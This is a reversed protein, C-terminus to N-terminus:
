VKFGLGNLACAVNAMPFTVLVHHAAWWKEARDYATIASSYSVINPELGGTSRPSEHMIM